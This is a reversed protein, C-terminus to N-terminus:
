NSPTTLYVGETFLRKVEAEEAPTMGSINIKIDGCQIFNNYTIDNITIGFYNNALIGKKYGYFPLMNEETNGDPVITVPRTILLAPKNYMLTGDIPSTNGIMTKEVPQTKINYEAQQVSYKDQGYQGMTNGISQLTGAASSAIGTWTKVSDNLPNNLANASNIFGATQKVIDCGNSFLNQKQSLQASKLSQIGQYIGAQYNASQIGSFPIETGITGHGTCIINGDYSDLAVIATCSGTVIDIKYSVYIAHGLCYSTPFTTTGCYPLYITCESYPAYDRFDGYAELPQFFGLELTNGVNPYSTSYMELAGTTSSYGAGTNNVYARGLKVTSKQAAGIFTKTNFPYWKVSVINDIPNSNLFNVELWHRYGDYDLHTAQTDPDTEIFQEMGKVNNCFRFIADVDVGDGCYKTTASFLALNQKGAMKKSTKNPDNTPGSPTGGPKYPTKSAWNDGWNRQPQNANDLGQTYAGHTIGSGDITGIFADETLWDKTVDPYAMETFYMGFYACSQRVYERFGNIGGFDSLQAHFSYGYRATNPLDSDASYQKVHFKSVDRSLVQYYYPYSTASTYGTAYTDPCGALVISCQSNYQGSSIQETKGNYIGTSNVAYGRNNLFTTDLDIAYQKPDTPDYWDAFTFKVPTDPVTFGQILGSTSTQSGFSIDTIDYTKDEHWNVHSIYATVAYIVIKDASYTNDNIRKVFTYLDDRKITDVLGAYNRPDTVANWDSLTATSKLVYYHIYPTMFYNGFDFKLAPALGGQALRMIKLGGTYSDIQPSFSYDPQFNMPVSGWEAGGSASSKYYQAYGSTIYASQTGKTGLGISNKANQNAEYRSHNNNYGTVGFANDFSAQGDTSCWCFSVDLPRKYSDFNMGYKTAPWTRSSLGYTSHSITSFQAVKFDDTMTSVPKFDLWTSEPGYYGANIAM